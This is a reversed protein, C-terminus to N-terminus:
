EDNEEIGPCEGDEEYDYDDSFYFPEDLENKM